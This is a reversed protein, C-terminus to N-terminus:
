WISRPVSTSNAPMNVSRIRRRRRKMWWQSPISRIVTLPVLNELQLGGAALLLTHQTASSSLKIIKQHVGQSWLSPAYSGQGFHAPNGQIFMSLPERHPWRHQALKCFSCCCGVASPPPKGRPHILRETRQPCSKRPVLLWMTGCYRMAVDLPPWQCAHQTCRVGQGQGKTPFGVLYM